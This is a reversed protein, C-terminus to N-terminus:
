GEQAEEFSEYCYKLQTLMSEIIPRVKESVKGTYSYERNEFWDTILVLCFLKALSNTNDFQNGTANKLYEEAANMLSTILIDSENDDIRLYKKTEELTVIALKTVGKYVISLPSVRERNRQTRKIRKLHNKLRM